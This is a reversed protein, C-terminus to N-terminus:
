ESYVTVHRKVPQYHKNYGPLLLLAIIGFLINGFINVTFFIIMAFSFADDAKIGYLALGVIVLAHYSGMGGPSPIIMGLSGFVFVLLGALPGLHATPEFAQFCLFTMLYYMGWIIFTHVLLIVPNKVSAVSKLGELFGKLLGDIKAILKFRLLSKWNRYTYVLIVLGALLILYFWLTQFIFLFPIQANETLYTGLVDYQFILALILVTAFSLLDIVRDAAVTGMVKEFPIKEYRSFSAARVVEGLRPLGLNAFYGLMTTHFANLIRTNYGLSSVLQQWRLSRSVNSIFFCLIIVVLWLIKASKFDSVLKNWLSCNEAPIGKQFCDEQYNGELSQYLFWLITMGIGLFLIM